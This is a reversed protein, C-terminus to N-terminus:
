LDVHITDRKNNKAKGKSKKPQSKKNEPISTAPVEPEQEPELSPVTMATQELKEVLGQLIEEVINTALEKLPPHGLSMPQVENVATIEDLLQEPEYETEPIPSPPPPPPPPPFFPKKKLDPHELDIERQKPLIIPVEVKEYKLFRDLTNNSHAIKIHRMMVTDAVHYPIDAEDGCIDDLEQMAEAELEKETKRRTNTSLEKGDNIDVYETQHLDNMDTSRFFCICARMYNNFSTLVDKTLHPEVQDRDNLLAETLELSRDKYFEVNRLFETHHHHSTDDNHGDM